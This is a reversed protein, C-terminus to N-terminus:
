RRHGDPEILAASSHPRLASHGGTIQREDNTTWGANSGILATLAHVTEALQSAVTAWHQSVAVSQESAQSMQRVRVVVQASAAQQQQTAQSINRAAHLAQEVGEVIGTMSEGSRYVLAMGREAERVGDEAAMVAANTATQVESVLARVEETSRLARDALRKVETAVIAFRRGHEGAGAAEIAANLALLHTEDAIDNILDIIAGIQQAKEGLALIRQALAQVKDRVGEIGAVTEEVTKRATEVVARNSEVARTVRDASEAILGAMQSLEEMTTAIHTMTRAQDAVETAQNQAQASMEESAVTMVQVASQLPGIISGAILWGLLLAAIFSLVAVVLDVQTLERVMPLSTTTIAEIASNVRHLAYISITGIALSPIIATLAFGVMIRRRIPWDPRFLRLVLGPGTEHHEANM